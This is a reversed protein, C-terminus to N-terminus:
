TVRRQNGDSYLGQKLIYARVSDPIGHLSEVEGAHSRIETASTDVM